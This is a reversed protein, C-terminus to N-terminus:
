EGTRYDFPRKHDLTAEDCKLYVPRINKRKIVEKSRMAVVVVTNSAERGYEPAIEMALNYRIAREYGTPLSISTNLSPLNLLPKQSYIVVTTGESPVPYFNLTENPFTGDIFVQTPISGQVDKTPISAFEHMTIIEVPIENQPVQTNQILVREIGIPRSSDFDGGPGFSYAAQGGVLTFEERTVANIILNENSWSDLMGNLAFLADNSEEAPPTEGTALAGILRLSGKIIDRATSM